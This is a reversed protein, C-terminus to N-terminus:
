EEKDEWRIVPRRRKRLGETKSAFVKKVFEKSKKREM